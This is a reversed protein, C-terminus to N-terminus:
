ERNQLPSNNTITKGRIMKEMRIAFRIGLLIVLLINLLSIASIMTSQLGVTRKIVDVFVITSIFMYIVLLTNVIGMDFLLLVDIKKRKLVWLEKLLIMTSQNRLRTKALLVLEILMYGLTSFILGIFIWTTPNVLTYCKYSIAFGIVYIVLGGCFDKLEM